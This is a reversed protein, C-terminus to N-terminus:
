NWDARILRALETQVGDAGLHGGTITVLATPAPVTTELKYDFDPVQLFGLENKGFGLLSANPKSMKLIPCKISM